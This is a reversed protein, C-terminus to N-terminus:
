SKCFFFSTGFSQELDKLFAVYSMLKTAYLRCQTMQFLLTELHRIDDVLSFGLEGPM